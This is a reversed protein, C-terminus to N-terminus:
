PGRRHTPPMDGDRCAGRRRKLHRARYSSVTYLWQLSRFRFSSQLPPEQQFSPNGTAGARDRKEAAAVVESTYRFAMVHDKKGNFCTNMSMNKNGRRSDERREIM